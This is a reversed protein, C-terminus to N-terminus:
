SMRMWWARVVKGVASGASVHELYIPAGELSKAAARLEDALYLRWNRSLGARIATGQIRLPTSLKFEEVLRFTSDQGESGM